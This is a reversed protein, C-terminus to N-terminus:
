SFTHLCWFTHNRLIWVSVNGSRLRHWTPHVHVHLSVLVDFLECVLWGSVLNSNGSLEIKISRRDWEELWLHRWLFVAFVCLDTFCISIEKIEINLNFWHQVNKNKLCKVLCAHFDELFLLKLDHFFLLFFVLLYSICLQNFCLSKLCSFASDSSFDFSSSDLLLCSFNLTLHSMLLM